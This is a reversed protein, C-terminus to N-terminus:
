ERKGETLALLLKREIKGKEAEEHHSRCLTILNGEDLRLEYDEALPVIHHVELKKWNFKDRNVESNLLCVQCLYGDRKRIIERMKKWDSSQRFEDEIRGSKKRYTKQPCDEGFKHVKGCINCSRLVFSVGRM